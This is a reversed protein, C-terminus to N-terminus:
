KIVKTGEIFQMTDKAPKSSKKTKITTLKDKKSNYQKISEQMAVVGVKGLIDINNKKSNNSINKLGKFDVKDWLQKTLFPKYFLFKRRILSMAVFSNSVKSQKGTVSRATGWKTSRKDKGAEKRPKKDWGIKVSLPFMSDIKKRLEKSNIKVKVQM